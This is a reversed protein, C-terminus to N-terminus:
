HGDSSTTMQERNQRETNSNHILGVGQGGGMEVGVGERERM